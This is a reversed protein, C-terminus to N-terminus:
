AWRRRRPRATRTRTRRWTRGTGGARWRWAQLRDAAACGGRCGGGDGAADAVAASRASGCGCDRNTWASQSRATAGGVSWEGRQRASRRRAAALYNLRFGEGQSGRGGAQRRRCGRLGGNRTGGESWEGKAVGDIRRSWPRVEPDSGRQQACGQDRLERRQRRLLWNCGRVVSRGGGARGPARCRRSCGAKWWRGCRGGWRRWRAGGQRRCSHGAAVLMAAAAATHASRTWPGEYGVSRCTNVSRRHRCGM